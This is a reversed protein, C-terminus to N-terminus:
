NERAGIGLAALNEVSISASRISVANGQFEPVPCSAPDAFAILQSDVPALPAAAEMDTLFPDIANTNAGNEVISIARFHLVRRLLIRVIRPIWVAVGWM